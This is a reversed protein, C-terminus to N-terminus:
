KVELNFNLETTSDTLRNYIKIQKIQWHDNVKELKSVSFEKVRDGVLDYADARLLGGTEVDIWSLVRAYGKKSPSPNTSELVRCYRSKRMEKKVLRQAPWHFFELGLDALWFDSGVFPRETEAGALVVSGNTGTALSYKNPGTAEHTVVLKEAPIGNTAQTEYISQWAVPDDVFRLEVPIETAKGNAPDIRLSGKAEIVPKQARLFSALAQGDDLPDNQARAQGTFVLLSALALAVFPVRLCIRKM